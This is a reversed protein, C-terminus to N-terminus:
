WSVTAAEKQSQRLKRWSHCYDTSLPVLLCMGRCNVDSAASLLISQESSSWDTDSSGQVWSSSFFPIDMKISTLTWKMWKTCFLSVSTPDVSSKIKLKLTFSWFPAGWNKKKRAQHVFFHTKSVTQVCKM